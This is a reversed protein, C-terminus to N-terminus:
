DKLGLTGHLQNYAHANRCCECIQEVIQNIARIYPLILALTIGCGQLERVLPILSERIAADREGLRYKEFIKIILHSWALVANSCKSRYTLFGIFGYFATTGNSFNIHNTEGGYGM